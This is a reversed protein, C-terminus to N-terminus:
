LMKEAIIYEEFKKWAASYSNHHKRNQEIFGKNESIYRRINDLIQPTLSEVVPKVIIRADILRKELVKFSSAYNSASKKIMVRKLFDDFTMHKKKSCSILRNTMKQRVGKQCLKIIVDKKMGHHELYALLPKLGEAYVQTTIWYTKGEFCVPKAAYRRTGSSDKEPREGSIILRFGRTKFIKCAKESELFAIENKLLGTELAERFAYAMVQGIKFPFNATNRTKHKGNSQQLIAPSLNNTKNNGTSYLFPTKDKEMIGLLVPEPDDEKEFFDYGLIQIIKIFGDLYQEMREKTDDPIYGINPENKNQIVYRNSQGKVTKILTAIRNELYSIDTGSWRNGRDIFVIAETWYAESRTDHENIRGYIAEGNKRLNAQGVYINNQIENKDNVTIGFLLYVGCQKMEALTKAASMTKRNLHFVRGPFHIISQGKWNMLGVEYTGLLQKYGELPTIKLSENM